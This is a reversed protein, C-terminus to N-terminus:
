TRIAQGLAQLLAPTSAAVPTRRDAHGLTFLDRGDSEEVVVGAETCILM